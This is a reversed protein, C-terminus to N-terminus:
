HKLEEPRMLRFGVRVKVQFADVKGDRITGRIEDVEFWDMGQVTEAARAIGNRVAQQISQESVGVLEIVKYTREPM